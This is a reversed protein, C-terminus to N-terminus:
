MVQVRDSSKLSQPVRLRSTDELEVHKSSTLIFCRSTGSQRKVESRDTLRRDLQRTEGSEDKLTSVHCM